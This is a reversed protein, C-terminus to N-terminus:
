SAEGPCCDRLRKPREGMQEMRVVLQTIRATESTKLQELMYKLWAPIDSNLQYHVWKGQRRDTLVGARRLLALNRSIKAQPQQMATELECVCLEGQHDILLTLELRNIDALSKVIDLSQDLTLQTDAASETAISM